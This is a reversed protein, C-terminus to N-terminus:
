IGTKPTSAADSDVPKEEIAEPATEGIDPTRPQLIVDEVRTQGGEVNVEFNRDEFDFKRVMIRYVGPPIPETEGLDNIRQRLVFFGRSNTVVVDTEPQTSVEAKAVPTGRNDVARGGISIPGGGCAALVLAGVTLTLRRAIRDLSPLSTPILSEPTRLSSM